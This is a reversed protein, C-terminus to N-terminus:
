SIISSIESFRHILLLISCIEADSAHDSAVICENQSPESEFRMYSPPPSFRMALNIFMIKNCLVGPGGMIKVKSLAAHLRQLLVIQAEIDDM